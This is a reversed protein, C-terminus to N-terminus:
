GTQTQRQLFMLGSNIHISVKQKLIVPIKTSHCIRPMQSRRVSGENDGLIVFSKNRELGVSLGVTVTKALVCILARELQFAEAIGQHRYSLLWAVM